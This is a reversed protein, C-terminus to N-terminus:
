NGVLNFHNFLLFLNLFKLTKKLRNTILIDIVKLLFIFYLIKIYYNNILKNLYVQFKYLIFLLAQFRFNIFIIQSQNIIYDILYFLDLTIM